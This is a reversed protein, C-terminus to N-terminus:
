AIGRGLVFVRAIYYGKIRDKLSSSSQASNSCSVYEDPLDPFWNPFSSEFNPGCPTSLALFIPPSIGVLEMPSSM